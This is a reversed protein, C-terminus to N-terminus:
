VQAEAETKRCVKDGAAEGANKREVRRNASQVSIASFPMREGCVLSSSGKSANDRRSALGRTEDKAWAICSRCSAKEAGAKRDM